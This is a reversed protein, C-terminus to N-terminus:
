QFKLNHGRLIFPCSLHGRIVKPGCFKESITRPHLFSMDWVHGIDEFTDEFKGSSMMPWQWSLHHGCAYCWHSCMICHM